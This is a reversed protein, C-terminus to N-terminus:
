TSTSVVFDDVDVGSEKILLYLNSTTAVDSIKWRKTNLAVIQSINRPVQFSIFEQKKFKKVVPATFDTDTTDIGHETELMDSLPMNNLAAGSGSDAREQRLDIEELRKKKKEVTM